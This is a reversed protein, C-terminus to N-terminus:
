YYKRQIFKLTKEADFYKALLDDYNKSIIKERTALIKLVYLRENYKLLNELNLSWVDNQKRRCDVLNSQDKIYFKKM